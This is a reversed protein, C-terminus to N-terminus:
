EHGNMLRLGEIFYARFLDQFQSWTHLRTKWRVYWELASKTFVIPLAYFVQRESIESRISSFFEGLRLIFEKTQDENEDGSFSLNWVRLLQAIKLQTSIVSLDGDITSPTTPQTLFMLPNRKDPEPSPTLERGEPVVQAAGLSGIQSYYM